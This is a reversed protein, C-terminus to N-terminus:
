GKMQDISVLTVVGLCFFLNFELEFYLSLQQKYSILSFSLNIISLLLLLKPTFTFYFLSTSSLNKWFIFQASIKLIAFKTVVILQSNKTDILEHNKVYTNFVKNNYQTILINSIFLIM